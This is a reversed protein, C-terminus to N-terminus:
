NRYFSLVKLFQYSIPQLTLKPQRNEGKWAIESIELDFEIKKKSSCLKTDRENAQLFLLSITKSSVTYAPFIQL